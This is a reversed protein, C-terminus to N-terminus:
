PPLEADLAPFQHNYVLLSYTNRRIKPEDVSEERPPSPRLASLPAVGPSISSAGSNSWSQEYPTPPEMPLASEAPLYPYQVPYQDPYVSDYSTPMSGPHNQMSQYGGSSVNDQWVSQTPSLIAFLDGSSPQTLYYPDSHANIHSLVNVQISPNSPPATRVDQYIMDYHGSDCLDALECHGVNKPSKRAIYCVFQRGVLQM